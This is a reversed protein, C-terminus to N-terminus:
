QKWWHTPDLPMGDADCGKMHPRGGSRRQGSPGQMVQNDHEKCLSRLNSLVDPGGRRRPIVHDVHTARTRCGPVVCRYGDRRLAAARLSQWAMTKYFPDGPM